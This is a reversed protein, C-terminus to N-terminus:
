TLEKIKALTLPRGSQDLMDSFTIKGSRWLDARGVGLAADQQKVSKAALWDESSVDQVDGGFYPRLFSRCRRHLPPTDFPVSTGLIPEKNLDWIAGSRVRCIVSTKGDLVSTHIYGRVGSFSDYSAMRAQNAMSQVATKILSQVGIQRQTLLLAEDSAISVASAGNVVGRGIIEGIAAATSAASVGWHSSLAVGVVMAKGDVTPPKEDGGVIKALMKTTVDAEHQLLGDLGIDTLADIDNYADAVAANIKKILAAHQKSTIPKDGHARLLLLVAASLEEIRDNADKGLSADLRFLVVQRDALAHTIQEDQTM